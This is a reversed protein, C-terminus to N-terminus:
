SSHLKNTLTKQENRMFFVAMLYNQPFLQGKKTKNIIGIRITQCTTSLGDGVKVVAKIPFLSKKM